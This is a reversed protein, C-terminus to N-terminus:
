IIRRAIAAAEQTADLSAGKSYAPAFDCQFDSKSAVAAAIAEIRKARSRMERAIAESASASSPVRAIKADPGGAASESGDDMEARSRKRGTRASGEAATSESQPLPAGAAAASEPSPADDPGPGCRDRAMAPVRRVVVDIANLAVDYEVSAIASRQLPTLRWREPCMEDRGLVDHVNMATITVSNCDSYISIAGRGRSPYAAGGDGGAADAEVCFTVTTGAGANGGVNGDSRESMAGAFYASAARGYKASLREVVIRVIENTARASVRAALRAVDDTAVDTARAQSGRYFLRQPAPAMQGPASAYQFM